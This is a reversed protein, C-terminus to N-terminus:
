LYAEGLNIRAWLNAPQRQVVWELPGVAEAPRGRAMLLSGVFFRIKPSDPLERDLRQALALTQETYEHKVVRTELDRVGGLSQLLRPRPRGAQAEMAELNVQAQALGPDITLARLYAREADALRRQRAYLFGLNAW